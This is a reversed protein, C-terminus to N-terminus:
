FRNELVVEDYDLQGPKPWADKMGRGIAVMPGICHDEPLRVLEAVKEHDFGIMPCSEYGMSKAALMLTQMAIGISRQAEDRQLQERGEHFPGIWNVLMEAVESPANRWYREPSKRWADVDATMLILVSADTMQTQDNGHERVQRRLDPDRIVVFRWHQINFSTPAQMAAELLRKLDEDPMTHDPDYHKIARRGYIADFTDMANELPDPRRIRGVAYQPQESTPAGISRLDRSMPDRGASTENRATVPRRVDANRDSQRASPRSWQLCMDLLATKDIPKTMYERCGADLCKQRDGDMARATLAIIPLTLDHERLLQTAGYGDLEPMQMDM